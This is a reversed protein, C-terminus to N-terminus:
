IPLGAISRTTRRGCGSSIWHNRWEGQHLWAVVAAADDEYHKMGWRRATDGRCGRGGEDRSGKKADGGGEDVARFGEARERRWSIVGLGEM